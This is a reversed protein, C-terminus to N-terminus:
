FHVICCGMMLRDSENVSFIEFSFRLGGYNGGFFIRLGVYGNRMVLIFDCFCFECPFSCIGEVGVFVYQINCSFM